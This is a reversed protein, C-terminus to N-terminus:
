FCKSFLQIMEETPGEELVKDFTQQDGLVKEICAKDAKGGTMAVIIQAVMEKSITGDAPISLSTPLSIGTIDPLTIGPFSIDPISIGPISIDPISIDPISIDISGSTVEVTKGAQSNETVATNDGAKIAKSADSSCAAAGITLLMAGALAVSHKTLM